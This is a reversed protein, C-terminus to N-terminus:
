EHQIKKVDINEPYQDSISKLGSELTKILLQAANSRHNMAIKFGDDYEILEIDADTHDYLSNIISISLASVAACVIDEGVPAHMAHGKIKFETIDNSVSNVKFTATIM